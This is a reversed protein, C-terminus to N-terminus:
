KPLMLPHKENFKRLYVFILKKKKRKSLDNWENYFDPDSSFIPDINLYNFDLVQGTPFYLIYQKSETRQTPQSSYYSFPDYNNPYDYVVYTSIFHSITGIIPILTAKSNIYIYPKGNKSYGWIKKTDIQLQQGYPNVINIIKTNFLQDFFDPSNKDIPIIINSLPVPNNNKVQEFTVYLGTNFKFNKDVIVKTTDQAFLTAISFFIIFLNSIIKM